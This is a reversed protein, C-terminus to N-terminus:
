GHNFGHALTKRKESHYLIAWPKLRPFTVYYLVVTKVTQQGGM